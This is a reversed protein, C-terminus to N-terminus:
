PLEMVEQWLFDPIEVGTDRSEEAAQYGREGPMKIESFGPRIRCSRIDDIFEDITDKFSDAPVFSDIHIALFFQGANWPRQAKADRTMSMGALVGSLVDVMIALGFGKYGGLSLLAGKLAEGPDTTTHGSADIAWGEPIATRNGAAQSINGAAVVSTAMDLVIPLKRHAPIAISIPNTSFFPERGGWPAVKPVGHTMAIGICDHSIAQMTYNALMSLDNANRFVVCGLGQSIAKEIALNMGRTAIVPGLGNNGDAVAFCAGENLTELSAGAVLSGSLVSRCTAALFCIGQTHVGRLDANMYCRTLIDSEDASIGVKSFCAAYIDKLRAQNVIM